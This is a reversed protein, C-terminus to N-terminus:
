NALGRIFIDSRRQPCPLPRIKPEPLMEEFGPKPLALVATGRDRSLAAQLTEWAVTLTQSYGPSGPMPHLRILVPNRLCDPLFMADLLDDETEVSYVGAPLVTEFGDLQFPCAFRVSSKKLHPLM